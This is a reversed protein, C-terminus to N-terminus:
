RNPTPVPQVPVAAGGHGEYAREKAMMANYARKQRLQARLSDVQERASELNDADWVEENLRYAETQLREFEGAHAPAIPSACLLAIALATRRM